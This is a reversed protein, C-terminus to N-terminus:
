NSIMARLQNVSSMLEKMFLTQSISITFEEEHDSQPSICYTDILCYLQYKNMMGLHINGLNATTDGFETDMAGDLQIYRLNCKNKYM